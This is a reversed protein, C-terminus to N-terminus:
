EFLGGGSARGVSQREGIESLKVAVAFIVGVGKRQIFL